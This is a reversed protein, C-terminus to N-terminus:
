DNDSITLNYGDLQMTTVVIFDGTAPSNAINRRERKKQLKPSWTKKTPPCKNYRSHATGFSGNDIDTGSKNQKEQQSHLIHM